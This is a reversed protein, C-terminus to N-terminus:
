KVKKHANGENCTLVVIRILSLLLFHEHSGLPHFLWVLWCLRYREPGLRRANGNCHMTSKGAGTPGFHLVHANQSRDPMNLPDFTLTIM